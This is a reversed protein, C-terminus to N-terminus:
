RGWKSRPSVSIREAAKGQSKRRSTCLGGTATVISRFQVKRPQQRVRRGGGRQLQFAQPAAGAERCRRTVIGPRRGSCRLQQVVAAVSQPRPGTVRM